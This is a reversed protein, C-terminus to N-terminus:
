EDNAGVFRILREKHEENYLNFLHKVGYVKALEWATRTGGSIEGYKDAKAWCILFDSPKNLTNGLVQYVNRAHLAKAGRSCKDWAPHIQAAMEYAKGNNPLRDLVKYWDKYYEEPTAFSAWPIYIQALIPYSNDSIDMWCDKCGDEFATDAGEAAGSRLVYGKQALRYAAKTMLQLIDKPTQRSGVGTYYKM